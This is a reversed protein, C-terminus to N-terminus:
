LGAPLAVYAVVLTWLVLDVLRRLMTLGGEQADAPVAETVLALRGKTSTGGHTTRTQRTSAAWRLADGLLVAPGADLALPRPWWSLSQEV